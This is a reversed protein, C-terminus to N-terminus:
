KSKKKINVNLESALRSLGGIKLDEMNRVVFKLDVFEPFYLKLNAYFLKLNNPM